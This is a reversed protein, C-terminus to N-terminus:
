EVLSIIQNTMVPETGANTCDSALTSNGSFTVQAAVIQTCGGSTTSSGRYNVQSAPFYLAGQITSGSAGNIQHSVGTASRSGFFLIGSFPGSTPAALRLVGNGSLRARGGGTFYFTVGQGRLEAVSSSDVNGSNITFDGGEIIYLGPGFNVTGKVDLGGCFRMSKVGSPHNESPTLNTTTNPSGVNKGLCTGTVAPEPVSAYPDPTVPAYQQVGPCGSLSLGSTTVAGGVAYVCRASLAASTGSMLFADAATSNSAVDCGNLKVDTSGSVTVAGPASRSLALVCAQSGGSLSAVARAQLLYPEKRFISSFLAPQTETLLVEVSDRDGIKAGSAPPMNLVLTGNAQPLGGSRAIHLAAAEVGAKADGARKRVAAAHVSADAAHQLTRQSMYRYGTEAGLGMGGIVVPFLLAAVIATAGGEQRLLERSQEWLRRQGSRKLLKSIIPMNM